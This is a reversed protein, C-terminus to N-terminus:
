LRTILLVNDKKITSEHQPQRMDQTSSLTNKNCMSLSHPKVAETREKHETNNSSGSIQPLLSSSTSCAPVRNSVSQYVISPAKTHTTYTRELANKSTPNKKFFGILTNRFRRGAFCYVVFNISSNLVLCLNNFSTLIYVAYPSHLQGRNHCYLFHESGM